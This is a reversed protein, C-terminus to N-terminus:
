PSNTTGPGPFPFTAPGSFSGSIGDLPNITEQPLNHSPFVRPHPGAWDYHTPYDIAMHSNRRADFAIRIKTTCGLRFRELIARYPISQGELYHNQTENLNGNVWTMPNNPANDRGDNAQDLNAQPSQASSVFFTGALLYLCFILKRM